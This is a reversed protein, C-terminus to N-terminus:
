VEGRLKRLVIQDTKDIVRDKLALRLLESPSMSPWTPEPIVGEMPLYVRYCGASADAELRLWQEMAREAATRATDWWANDRGDAGPLRIPWLGPTGDRTIYYYLDYPNALNSVEAHLAPLVLYMDRVDGHELLLVQHRYSPDPHVRFFSHKHPKRVAVRLLVQEIPMAFTQPLAFKSPDSFVDLSVAERAPVADIQPPEPKNM